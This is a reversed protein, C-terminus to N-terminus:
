ALEQERLMLVHCLAHDVVFRAVPALPRPGPGERPGPGPHGARLVILRAGREEAVRLIEHEPRGSAIIVEAAKGKEQLWADIEARIGEQTLAVTRQMRQEAQARRPGRALLGGLAREAEELPRTDLVHLLLWELEKSIIGDAATLLGPTDHGDLSILVKM